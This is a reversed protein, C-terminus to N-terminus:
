GCNGMPGKVKAIGGNKSTCTPASTDRGIAISGKTAVATVVSGANLCVAGAQGGTGLGTAGRRRAAAGQVDISSLLGYDIFAYDM